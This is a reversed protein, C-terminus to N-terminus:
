SLQVEVRHRLYEDDSTRAIEIARTVLDRMDAPYAEPRLPLGPLLCRRLDLDEDAVFRRLGAENHRRDLDRYKEREAVSEPTPTRSGARFSLPLLTWYWARAAGAADAAVGNELYELLAVRVRRRGFAAVAPDVLDRVFSPDPEHVAARISPEFWEEPVPGAEGSQGARESVAAGVKRATRLRWTRRSRPSQAEVVPPEVGVLRLLEHLVAEYAASRDVTRGPLPHLEAPTEGM